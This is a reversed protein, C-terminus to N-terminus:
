LYNIVRITITIVEVIRVYVYGHNHHSLCHMSCNEHDPMFVANISLTAGDLRQAKYGAALEWLFFAFVVATLV